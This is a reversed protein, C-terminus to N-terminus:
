EYLRKLTRLAHIVAQRRVSERDGQFRLTASHVPDDRRIWAFCVMGVPRTETGGGPGAVGSVALVLDANSRELGGSVMARVVEESVAGHERLLAPDVGLLECKADNSYTIFGRDYWNSSGATATVLEGIWGGTCSEVTCLTLGRDRLFEGTEFSLQALETDM